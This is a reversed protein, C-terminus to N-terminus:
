EVGSISNSQAMVPPHDLSSVPGKARSLQGPERWLEFYTHVLWSETELSLPDGTSWQKYKPVGYAM